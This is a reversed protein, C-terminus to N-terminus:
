LGEGTRGRAARLRASARRQWAEDLLEAVVEPTASRVEVRVGSLQRGWWLLACCDPHAAAAARAEDEGLMVNLADEDTVTALIKGESRYSARGHHDAEHVGLLGLALAPVQDPTM